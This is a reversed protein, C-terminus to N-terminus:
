PPWIWPRSSSGPAISPRSKRVPSALIHKIDPIEGSILYPLGCASYSIYKGQELITISAEPDLRRARAAAKPGAAVGGVIVIKL